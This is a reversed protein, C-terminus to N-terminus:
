MRDIVVAVYISYLLLLFLVCIRCGPGACPKIVGWALIGVPAKKVRCGMIRLFGKENM